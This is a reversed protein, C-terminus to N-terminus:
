RRVLIRFRLVGHRTVGDPDQSFDGYEYSTSVHGWGAITLSNDGSDVVAAKSDLANVITAAIGKAESMGPYRSWIHLTATLEYGISSHTEHDGRAETSHGLTVYPFGANDPVEDHVECSLAAELATFLATQVALSASM